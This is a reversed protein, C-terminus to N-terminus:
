IINKKRTRTHSSAFFASLLSSVGLHPFKARSSLNLDLISRFTLSQPICIQGAPNKQVGGRFPVQFKKKEGATADRATHATLTTKHTSQIPPGLRSAIILAGGPMSEEGACGMGSVSKRDLLGGPEVCHVGSDVLVETSNKISWPFVGSSMLCRISDENSSEACNSRDCPSSSSAVPEIKTNNNRKAERKAHIRRRRQMETQAKM